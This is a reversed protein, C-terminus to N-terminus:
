GRASGQRGLLFWATASVLTAAVAWVPGTLLESWLWYSLEAPTCLGSTRLAVYLQLVLLSWGATVLALVITSVGSARLYWPGQPRRPKSAKSQPQNHWPM